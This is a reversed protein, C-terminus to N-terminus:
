PKLNSGAPPHSARGAQDANEDASLKPNLLKPPCQLFTGFTRYFAFLLGEQAEEPVENELFIASFRVGSTQPTPSLISPHITQNRTALAVTM